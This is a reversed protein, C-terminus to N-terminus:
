VMINNLEYCFDVIASNVQIVGSLVEDVFDKTQSSNIINMINEISYDYFRDVCFEQPFELFRKLIYLFKYTAESIGLFCKNKLISMFDICLALDLTVNPPYNYLLILLFDIFERLLNVSSIKTRHMLAQFVTSNMIFQPIFVVKDSMVLNYFIVYVYGAYKNFEEDSFVEVRECISDLINNDVLMLVLDCFDRTLVVLFELLCLFISKDTLSLEIIHVIPFNNTILMSLCESNNKDIIRSTLCLCDSINKNTKIKNILHLLLKEVYQFKINVCFEIDFFEKLITFYESALSEGNFDSEIFHEIMLHLFEDKIHTFFKNDLSALRILILAAVTFNNSYGPKYLNWLVHHLGVNFFCNVYCHKERVLFLIMDMIPIYFEPTSRFKNLMASIRKFFFENLDLIQFNEKVVDNLQQCVTLEGSNYTGKDIVNQVRDFIRIFREKAKKKIEDNETDYLEPTNLM